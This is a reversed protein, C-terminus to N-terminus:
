GNACRMESIREIAQNRTLPKIGIGYEEVSSPSAGTKWNDLKNAMARRCLLMYEPEADDFESLWDEPIGKMTKEGKKGSHIRFECCDLDFIIIQVNDKAFRNATM